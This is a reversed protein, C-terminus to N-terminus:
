VPIHTPGCFADAPVDPTSDSGTSLLLDLKELRDLFNRTPMLLRERGDREGRQTTLYGLRMLLQLSRRINKEAGHVNLVCQKVTMPCGRLAHWAILLLLERILLSRLHPSDSEGGLLHSRLLQYAELTKM